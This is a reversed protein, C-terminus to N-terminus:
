FVYKSPPRSSNEVRREPSVGRTKQSNQKLETTYREYLCRMWAIKGIYRLMSVCDNWRIVILATAEAGKSCSRCDVRCLKAANVM